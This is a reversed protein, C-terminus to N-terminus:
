KHRGGKAQIKQKTKQLQYAWGESLRVSEISHGQRKLFLIDRYVTQESIGLKEALSPSSYSGSGILKILNEHRKAITLSREYRM